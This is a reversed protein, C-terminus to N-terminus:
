LSVLDNLDGEEYAPDDAGLSKRFGITKDIYTKYRQNTSKKKNGKLSKKMQGCVAVFVNPRYFYGFIRVDLPKFAWVGQKLPEFKKLDGRGMHHGRVFQDFMEEVQESPELQKHRDRPQLDLFDEFWEVLEPSLYLLRQKQEKPALDAEYLLLKGKTKLHNLTAM